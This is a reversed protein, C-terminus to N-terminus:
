LVLRLFLLSHPRHSLQKKQPTPQFFFDSWILKKKGKLSFSFFFHSHLFKFSSYTKLHSSSWVNLKWKLYTLCLCSISIFLYKQCVREFGSMLRFLGECKVWSCEGVTYIVWNKKEGWPIYSEMCPAEAALSSVSCLLSSEM